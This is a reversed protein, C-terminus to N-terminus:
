TASSCTSGPRDDTASSIANWRYRKRVPVFRQLALQEFAEPEIALRAGPLETFALGPLRRQETRDAMSRLQKQQIFWRTSQIRRRATLDQFRSNLKEITFARRNQERRM